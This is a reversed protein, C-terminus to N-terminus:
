TLRLNNKSPDAGADMLKDTRGQARKMSENQMWAGVVLAVVFIGGLIAWGYPPISKAFAAIGGIASTVGAPISLSTLKSLLSPQSAKIEVAPAPPPSGEVQGIPKTSVTGITVGKEPLPEKGAEAHSEEIQPEDLDAHEDDEIEPQDDDLKFDDPLVRLAREYYARRQDWHNPLGTSKNRGNVRVQTDLFKRKDALPNLNKHISWFWGASDTAYPEEALRQPEKVFDVVPLHRRGRLFQTYASHNARGTIQIRGHGKFRKGDGPQNNGLDHRGEYAAGSAIEEQYKLEGSEIALTALWAAVRRESNIEYVRMVQNLIPLSALRKAKPANPMIQRLMEDTLESM